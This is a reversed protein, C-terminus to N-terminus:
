AKDAPITARAASIVNDFLAAVTLPGVGGRVPTIAIDDRDRVGPAVDGVVVGDEVATGADVVVGKHVIMDSTILGPVGTATIIVEAERLKGPLDKETDDYTEVDLGAARWLEGLPAGVLRGKGVIAIRRGKLTVNYGALLWDIAMATASVYVDSGGLNDVDKAAPIVAIAADTMTPDPLPLQLIIGHIAPNHAAATLAGAVDDQHVRIVDVDVLIDEGYAQKLRIYTEVVPSDSAAIIALKPYVGHAQRLGRVQKAQREKIYSALEAGNLSKM